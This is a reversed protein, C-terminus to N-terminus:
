SNALRRYVESWEEKSQLYLEFDNDDEDSPSEQVAPADYAAQLCRRASALVDVRNFGFKELNDRFFNMMLEESIQQNKPTNKWPSEDHTKRSLQNASLHGLTLQAHSLIGIVSPDYLNWDIEETLLIDYQRQYKYYLSLTVPGLDWARIEDPFLPEGHIALYFGQVYYVLKLLKLNSLSHGAENAAWIFYNAVDFSTLV